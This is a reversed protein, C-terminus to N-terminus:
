LESGRLIESRELFTGQARVLAAGARLVGAAQEGDSRLEEAVVEAALELNRTLHALPFDRAELIRALWAVQEEFDCFDSLSLVAWNLLHQNDHVCWARTVEAPEYRDEDDGFEAAYRRCIEQALALLGITDGSPAQVTAPPPHGSPSRGLTDVFGPCSWKSPDADLLARLTDAVAPVAGFYGATEM